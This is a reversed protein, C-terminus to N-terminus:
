KFKRLNTQKNKLYGLGYIIRHCISRMITIPTGYKNVNIWLRWNDIKQILREGDNERAM